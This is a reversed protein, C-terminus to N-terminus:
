ITFHVASLKDRIVCIQCLACFYGLVVSVCWLCNQLSRVWHSVNICMCTSVSSDVLTGWDGSWSITLSTYIFSFGSWAVDYSIMQVACTRRICDKRYMSTHYEFWIVIQLWPWTYNCVRLGKIMIKITQILRQHYWSLHLYISSQTECNSQLLM